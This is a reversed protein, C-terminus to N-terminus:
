LPASARMASAGSQGAPCAAAQQSQSDATMHREGGTCIGHLNAIASEVSEQVVAGIEGELQEQQRACSSMSNRCLSGVASQPSFSTSLTSLRAYM